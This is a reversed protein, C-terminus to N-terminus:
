LLPKGNDDATAPMKIRIGGFTGDPRQVTRDNFLTIEKGGWDDTNPSGTIEKLRFFNAKSVVLGKDVETFHIVLKKEEGGERKKFNVVDAGAISLKRPEPFDTNKLYKGSFLLEEVNPM